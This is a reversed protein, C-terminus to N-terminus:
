GSYNITMNLIAYKRSRNERINLALTMTNGWLARRAGTRFPDPGMIPGMKTVLHCFAFPDVQTIIMHLMIQRLEQLKLSVYLCFM